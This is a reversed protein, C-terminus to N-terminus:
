SQVVEVWTMPVIEDVIEGYYTQGEPTCVHLELGDDLEGAYGHIVTYPQIANGARSVSDMVGDRQIASSLATFVVNEGLSVHGITCYVLSEFITQPLGFGEWEYWLTEGRRDLTM